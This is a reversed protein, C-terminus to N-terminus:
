DFHGKAHYVFPIGLWLAPGHHIPLGKRAHNFLRPGLQTVPDPPVPHHGKFCASLGQPAFFSVRLRPPRPSFIHCIGPNTPSEKKFFCSNTQTKICPTVAAPMGGGGKCVGRRRTFYFMMRCTTACSPCGLRFTAPFAPFAGNKVSPLCPKGGVGKKGPM